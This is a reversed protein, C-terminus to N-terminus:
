PKFARCIFNETWISQRKGTEVYKVFTAAAKVARWIAVDLKGRLRIPVPGTEDFSLDVFGAPRLLQGLSQPTFITLHTLDGYVIGGPFLGAGNATQVILRGGPRLAGYVSAALRPLEDKSFHELVDVAVIAAYAAPREVLVRLADGLEVAAGRQQAIAVQEASIDIGTAHSFGRRELYVLLGGPGCGIELLPADRPLDNLLPLYKHDFWDVAGESTLGSKGTKGTQSSKFTSVYREYLETRFDGGMQLRLMGAASVWATCGAM